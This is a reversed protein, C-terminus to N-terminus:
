LKSNLDIFKNLNNKCNPNLCISRILAIRGSERRPDSSGTFLRGYPMFLCRIRQIRACASAGIPTSSCQEGQKMERRRISQIQHSENRSAWIGLVMDQFSGRVSHCIGKVTARSHKSEKQSQFEPSDNMNCTKINILCKIEQKRNRPASSCQAIRSWTSPKLWFCFGSVGINSILQKELNCIM